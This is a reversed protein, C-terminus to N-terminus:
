RKNSIHSAINQYPYLYPNQRTYKGIKAPALTTPTHTSTYARVCVCVVQTSSTLGPTPRVGPFGSSGLDVLACYIHLGYLNVFYM